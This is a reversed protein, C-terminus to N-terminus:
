DASWGDRAAARGIGEAQHLLILDRAEGHHLAAAALQDADEGVAVDAEGAVLALGDALQHGLVPQDRHRVVDAAVLGLAQQMLVPDLLQQHHVLGIAADPEDGDLIDLLRLFEGIGALVLLAAQADGRGGADPGLPQLAGLRQQLGLDVDDDDVGGMAMGLAHDGGDGRDLAEAVDALDDGAIDGRGLPRAGQDVRAGIGDLDADPRARDAGGADDGADAHRLQRRQDIGDALRALAVDGDDGVAADFIGAVEGLGHRGPASQQM